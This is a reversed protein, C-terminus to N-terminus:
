YGSTFRAATEDAAPFGSTLVLAAPFGYPRKLVTQFGRPCRPLGPVMRFAASFDYLPTERIDSWAEVGAGAAYM